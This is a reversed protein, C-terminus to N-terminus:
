TWTAARQKHDVLVAQYAVFRWWESNKAHSSAQEYSYQTQTRQKVHTLPSFAASNPGYVSIRTLYLHAFAPAEMDDMTSYHIIYEIGLRRPTFLIRQHANGGM